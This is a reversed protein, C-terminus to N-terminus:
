LCYIFRSLIVSSLLIDSCCAHNAKLGTVYDCYNVMIFYAHTFSHNTFRLMSLGLLSIFDFVAFYFELSEDAITIFLWMIPRSFVLM